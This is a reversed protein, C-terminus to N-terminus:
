YRISSLVIVWTIDADGNNGHIYRVAREERHGRGM